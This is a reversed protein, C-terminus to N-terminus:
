YSNYSNTAIVAVLVLGKPRGPGGGARGDDRDGGIDRVGQLTPDCSHYIYIYIYVCTYMYIYAHMYIYIYIYVYTIMYQLIISIDSPM